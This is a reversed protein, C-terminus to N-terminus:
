IVEVVNKVMDNIGAKDYVRRQNATQELVYDFQANKYSNTRDNFASKFLNNM